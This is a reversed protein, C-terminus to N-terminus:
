QIIELLRFTISGPTLSNFGITNINTDPPLIYTKNNGSGGACYDYAMNPQNPAGGATLGSTSVIELVICESFAVASNYNFHSGVESAMTVTFEEDVEVSAKDCTGIVQTILVSTAIYATLQVEFRVGGPCGDLVANNPFFYMRPQTASVSDIIMTGLGYDIWTGVRIDSADTYEAILCMHPNGPYPDGSDYGYSGPSGYPSGDADYGPNRVASVPAFPEDDWWGELTPFQLVDGTVLTCPLVASGDALCVLTFSSTEGPAPRSEYSMFWYPDPFDPVFTQPVNVTITDGSIEGSPSSGAPLMNVDVNELKEGIKWWDDVGSNSGKVWIEKLATDVRQVGGRVITDTPKGSGTVNAVRGLEDFGSILTGANNLIRIVYATQSAALQLDLVPLTALFNKIHARATATGVSDGILLKQNPDVSLISVNRYNAHPALRAFGSAGALGQFTFFQAGGNRWAHSGSSNFQGTPLWWSSVSTGNIESLSATQGPFPELILNPYDGNPVIKNRTITNPNIAVYEEHEHECLSITAFSVWTVGDYTYQLDCSDLPNQRINSVFDCTASMAEYVVEWWVRAVDKGRHLDDPEWSNWYGLASVAGWFAAIHDLDDPICFRVCKRDPPNTVAPLPFYAKQRPM